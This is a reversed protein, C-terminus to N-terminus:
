SRIGDSRVINKSSRGVSSPDAEAARGAFQEFLHERPLRRKCGLSPASRDASALMDRVDQGARQPGVHEDM